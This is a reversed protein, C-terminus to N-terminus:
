SYLVASGSATHEVRLLGIGRLKFASKRIAACNKFFFPFSLAFFPFPAYLEGVPRLHWAPIQSEPQLATLV